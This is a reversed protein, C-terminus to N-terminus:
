NTHCSGQLFYSLCRPSFCFCFLIFDHPAQMVMILSYAWLLAESERERQEWKKHSVWVRNSCIAPIFTNVSSPHEIPSLHTLLEHTKWAARVGLLFHRRYTANGRASYSFFSCGWSNDTVIVPFLSRLVLQGNGGRHGWRWLKLARDQFQPGRDWPQEM